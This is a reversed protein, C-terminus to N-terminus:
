RCLGFPFLFFFIGTENKNKPKTAGARWAMLLQHQIWCGLWGQGYKMPSHLTCTKKLHPNSETQAQFAGFIGYRKWLNATVNFPGKMGSPCWGDAQRRSGFLLKRHCRVRFKRGAPRAYGGGFRFSGPVVLVSSLRLPTTTHGKNLSGFTKRSSKM